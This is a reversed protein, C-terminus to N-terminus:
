KTFQVEFNHTTGDNLGLQFSFCKGGWTKDTKWVYIYQMATTDYTLTSGGATATTTDIPDTVTSGSPCAIQTARPYGSMFISTGQNGGLNFKVPIASGAKASNWPVPDTLNNVPQFFGTWNYIVNYPCATTTSNGANDYGTVDVSKSGVSSTDAAASVPSSAPGSTADTVAATVNAPSQNLLFTPTPTDCTVTPPTSDIKYPGANIASATNGAEDSVTGSSISVASGQTSTSQTFPETLAGLLPFGSLNDTAQFGAVQTGRCWGNNGPLTCSDQSSDTQITPKTEDINVSGDTSSASNGANDYCTGTASQLTGETTISQTVTDGGTPVGSLSDTCAWSLTVSTNNWGFLNAAPSQGSYTISPPTADYKFTASDAPDSTNGANDTCTGSVTLGTGDPGSYTGSSCSAIGSTADSGTTTWDVAHNYWGNYDASRNLSTSVGTPATADYKFTASDAPDSTNGANDTCTGSVTLGTGDPGSYTGSSCSAIGSTADSGTTMWDVAHNYWGNYDASRNLSTSVGTPATADYKFTASDAPDSTNGANDTCTGSVTLGTGDPGSYTGSSCSAIGSTADSGTTMWDVAHNYWGNYDASRNLSTSVGTPATQDVKYSANASSPPGAAYGDSSSSAGSNLVGDTATCSISHEGDGLTVPTTNSLTASTGGSLDIITTAGDKCLLSGVSSTDSATVTLDIGGTGSSAINYWGTGAETAVVASNHKTVAFTITPPTTDVVWM